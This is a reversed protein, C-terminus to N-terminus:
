RAANPAQSFQGATCRPLGNIDKFTEINSFAVAACLASVTEAQEFGHEVIVWGGPRLYDAAGNIILELDAMGQRNAILATRPEFRVDGQNLHADHADIYPPNAVIMDFRSRPPLSTYWNSQVFRINNLRHQVANSKAVELAEAQADVAVINSEVREHALAIAIAGSGTGLELVTSSEAQPLRQLACEVLTETDPRPILVNENVQLELSWFEKHGVIYAIPKGQARQEVQNTFPQLHHEQVQDSGHAILWAM